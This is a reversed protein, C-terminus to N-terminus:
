PANRAVGLATLAGRVTGDAADLAQRAQQTGVGALLLVLATRLDGDAQTLAAESAIEDAGSVERLIRVRRLRLKDNTASVEAMLNSYTKGLRVMLATSFSNLILKLASTAKLRTSGAIAEPGTDAV